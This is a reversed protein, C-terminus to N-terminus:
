QPDVILHAFRPNITFCYRKHRHRRMRKDGSLPEHMPFFPNTVGAAVMARFIKMANQAATGTIGLENGIDAYRKNENRMLGVHGAHTFPQSWEDVDVILKRSVSEEMAPTILSEPLLGSLNVSFHARCIVVNGKVARYPRIVIESPIVKRMIRGFEADEPALTGMERWFEERLSEITPLQVTAPIARNLYRLEVELESQERELDKLRAVLPTLDPNKELVGLLNDSKLQSDALRTRLENIKLARDDTLRASEEQVIRFLREDFDPLRELENRIANVLNSAALPRSIGATNWCMYNKAGYCMLGDRQGNRGLVYPHACIGCILHQAPWRTRTRPCKRPSSKGSKGPRFHANREHLTKLLGDYREADIFALHPVDRYLHESKDALVSRRAGTRNIRRSVKMNRLQRGKLIPNRVFYGVNGANWRTGKKGRTGKPINRENFFDAVESFSAGSELKRFMEEVIAVMEPRKKVDQITKADAPREYCFLLHGIMTGVGFRHRHSRRIRKGTDKNYQEHRMAGFFAHTRWAEDSTDVHDNIAILRTDADECQECIQFAAIRRSIRGLDETIVLDFERSDILEDLERLEERDLKEGSVRSAIERFKTAGGFRESVYRKCLAVQEDLSREDQHVTSIRAVIIVRLSNGNRPTLTERTM